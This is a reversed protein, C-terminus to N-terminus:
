GGGKEQEDNRGGASGGTKRWGFDSARARRKSQGNRLGFSIEGQLRACIADDFVEPRNEVM